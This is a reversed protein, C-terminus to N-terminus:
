VCALHSNGYAVWIKTNYKHETNRASILESIQQSIWKSRFSQQCHVGVIRDSLIM